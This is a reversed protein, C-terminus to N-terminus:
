KSFNSANEGAIKGFVTIDVMANGGLRNAGHVGGTVEGAAFLGKIPKGNSLVETKENIKIGGMTHHVAPAVEVSYFPAKELVMPLSQRKFESDSNKKVAENYKSFTKKLEDTPINLNKALEEISNGKVLYGKKDYSDIAKLSEKVAEDFVLFASEGKQALEAKSVVDRTDLENVFRKGDRNVLIAGNGRVAETIMVSNTPIVTPHTQIQDMDILDANIAKVMSIGEGTAGKHNTTGFGKLAPVNEVIMEPNAGFGGTAIVVAKSNITYKQGNPAKVVVGKIAEGDYILSEAFTSLKIDVGINKATKSLASVVNPGVPAGGTPRHTRDISQGGLRGLNSLDAGKEMLWDVIESSSKAMTEVLNKDNTNKGGKMTDQVFIDISDNIGKSNQVSTQAANLGGTAYNTNGGLIAAKEVLIVNSGNEKAAISATLGAGGGGIVVVDTEIDKYIVVKKPKINLKAGSDKVARDVARKLGVSTSTAGAVNDVKTNQTEIIEDIISKMGDKTFDSEKEDLVEINKIENDTIEVKVKIDGNYGKASSIYDKGYSVSTSLVLCALLGLYKKTFNKM